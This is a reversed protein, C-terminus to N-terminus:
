SPLVNGDADYNMFPNYAIEWLNGEPDKIYGSYGGWSTKEPPKVVHAGRTKLTDFLDDVEKESQLNHALSFGRFGKGRASVAADETLDKWGFLALQVGNLQFFVIEENSSDLPSWGFVNKYFARMKALNRVGLTILTLRQEM